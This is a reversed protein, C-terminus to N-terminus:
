RRAEPSAAGPDIFQRLEKDSGVFRPEGFRGSGNQSTRSYVRPGHVHRKRGRYGAGELKVVIFTQLDREQESV